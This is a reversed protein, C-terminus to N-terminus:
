KDVDIQVADIPKGYSGALGNYYDSIDYGTIWDLWKGGKVHVRYKLQCGEAKMTICDTPKGKWGSYGSSTSDWKKVPALWNDRAKGSLHSRVTVTKGSALRVQIGSIARGFMGAYDEGNNVVPLWKGGAYVRYIVEEDFEMPLYIFGQFIYKGFNYPPKLTKKYWRSGGYASNSTVIKGDSYIEEVIAVHGAGDSAVGAKGKRWCIVAGLKPTQGREYGDKTNGWWNEANGRSLAPKKGLLEYWRGWAYGVCNPLVSGGKIHICSNHGDASTHLWNKDTKGPASLRPEYKAM